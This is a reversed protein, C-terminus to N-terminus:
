KEINVRKIFFSIVLGVVAIIIAVAFAHQVVHTFALVQNLPDTKDSVTELFNRSDSSLISIVVM